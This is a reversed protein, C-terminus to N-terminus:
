CGHNKKENRTKGVLLWNGDGILPDCNNAGSSTSRRSRIMELLEGTMCEINCNKVFIVVNSASRSRNIEVSHRGFQTGANEDLFVLQQGISCLHEIQGDGFTKTVLGRKSNPVALGHIVNQFRGRAVDERRQSQDPPETQVRNRDHFVVLRLGEVRKDAVVVLGVKRPGREIIDRTQDLVGALARLLEEVRKPDAVIVLREDLSKRSVVIRLFQWLNVRKATKNKECAARRLAMSGKRLVMSVEDKAPAFTAPSM